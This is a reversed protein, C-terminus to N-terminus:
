RVHFLKRYGTRTLDTCRETKINDIKPQQVYSYSKSIDRRGEFDSSDSQLFDFHM